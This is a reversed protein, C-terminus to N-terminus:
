RRAPLAAAEAALLERAGDPELVVVGSIMEIERVDFEHEPVIQGGGPLHFQGIQEPERQSLKALCGPERRVVEIIGARVGFGEVSHRVGIPRLRFRRPFM